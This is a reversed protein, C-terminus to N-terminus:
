SHLLRKSCTRLIIYVCLCTCTNYLRIKGLRVLKLSRFSVCKKIFFYIKWRMRSLSVRNTTLQLSMYESLLSRRAEYRRGPALPHWRKYGRVLRITLSSRVGRSTQADRVRCSSESQVRFSVAQNEGWPAGKRNCLLEVPKGRRVTM